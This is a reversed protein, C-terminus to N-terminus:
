FGKAIIALREKLEDETYFPTMNRTNFIAVPADAIKTKRFLVPNYGSDNNEDLNPLDHSPGYFQNV